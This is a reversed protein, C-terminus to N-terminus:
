DKTIWRTHSNSTVNGQKKFLKLKEAEFMDKFLFFCFFLFVLFVSFVPFVLSHNHTIINDGDKFDPVTCSLALAFHM